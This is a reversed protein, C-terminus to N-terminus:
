FEGGHLRQRIEKLTQKNVLEGNLFVTELLDEDVMKAKDLLTLQDVSKISKDDGKVVAVLGKQSKKFNGTDTKPNKEIFIEKGNVVGHTTKVAIGFTDRTYPSLTGDENESAQFSFSGVGLSTNNAAFGKIKLRDYIETMRAVTISDGYMVRISDHLVKYGKTNVEGPFNQYLASVTGQIHVPLSNFDCESYSETDAIYIIENHTFFFVNKSVGEFPSIDYLNLDDLKSLLREYTSQTLEGAEAEYIKAGAVIEIPDGSDGRVFMTGNHNLVQSKISPLVSEVINWYDYSDAVVSFSQNPYLETLLRTYMTKEDGDIEFNSCMVSHETSPLGFGVPETEINAGYYYELYKIAPITATNEHSLLFAASMRLASETGEQGRLSFESIARSRKIDDDVTAEYAKNVVQRTNYGVNASIMAAWSNASWISEIVNVVWAFDKHTNTIEIMPVKIPVITGEALASIKLPLYGLTHLERVKDSNYSTEGLTYHLTREYEHVVEEIPVNFFYENFIDILYEQMFEQFGFAILTDQGKLRSMRPTYYATLSTTGEPYQESHVTKYFDTLLLPNTQKMYTNKM